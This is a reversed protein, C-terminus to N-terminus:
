SGKETNQNISQVAARYKARALNLRATMGCSTEQDGVVYVVPVNDKDALSAAEHPCGCTANGVKYTMQVQQMAQEVIETYKTAQCQCDCTKGAVLTKGSTECTKPTAFDAVFKETSEVLAAMASPQDDFSQEAVVFTVPLEKQQALAAASESCCATEKGVKITLQPLEKMAAQVQCCEGEQAGTKSKCCEGEQAGTKSKCCEGEQAGTKSKCCEGEQAGTKSKCCEGEQAGTKSKCCDSVQVNAKSKCCDGESSDCCDDTTQQSTETNTSFPCADCPQGDATSKAHPCSEGEQAVVAATFLVVTALGFLCPYKMM